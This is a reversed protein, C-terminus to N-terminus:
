EFPAFSIAGGSLRASRDGATNILDREELAVDVFSVTVRGDGGRALSVGALCAPQDCVFLEVGDGERRAEVRVPQLSGPLTYVSLNGSGLNSGAYYVIEDGFPGAFSDGNNEDPCYTYPLGDSVTMGVQEPLFECEPPGSRSRPGALLAAARVVATEGSPAGVRYLMTDALAVRGGEVDTSPEVTVGACAPFGAGGCKYVARRVSDFPETFAFLSVSVVGAGDAHLRLTLAEGDVVISEAGSTYWEYTSREAPGSANPFSTAVCSGPFRAEAPLYVHFVGGDGSCSLPEPSPLGPADARLAGSLRAAVGGGVRALRVQTFGIPRRGEADPAGVTVGACGAGRCRYATGGDILDVQAISGDATVRVTLADGGPGTFSLVDVGDARTSSHASPCFEDDREGVLFDVREVRCLAEKAGIAALLAPLTEGRAVLAARVDAILANMPDGAAADFPDHTFSDIGAPVAVGWQALLARVRREGRAIGADTVQALDTTGGALQEFFVRPVQGVAYAAVLTTLPTVNVTGARTAVAHMDFVVFDQPGTGVMYPPALGRATISYRGSGSSSSAQRAPGAGRVVATSALPAEGFSITGALEEGAPTPLPGTDRPGDSAGGCGAMGLALALLLSAGPRRM